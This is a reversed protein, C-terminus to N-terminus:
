LDRRWGRGRQARQDSQDCVHVFRPQNARDNGAPFGAFDAAECGPTADVPPAPLATVAATVDGSGSYSLINNPIPGAPPPFGAGPSPPSLSIFTQFDFPQVTVNYGSATLLGAVYDVSADYGPTGSTRIGNNADAIAQFAAQHARVGELTVCELLKELTNNVRTDCAPSASASRPPISVAAATLALVMLIRVTNLFVRGTMLRKLM